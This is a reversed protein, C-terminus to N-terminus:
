AAEGVSRSARVLAAVTDDDPIEGFPEGIPLSDNDVLQFTQPEESQAYLEYQEGDVEYAKEFTGM